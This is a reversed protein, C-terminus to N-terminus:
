FEWNDLWCCILLDWFIFMPLFFSLPIHNRLLNMIVCYLFLQVTFSVFKWTSLESSHHYCHKVLKFHLKFFVYLFLVLLFGL